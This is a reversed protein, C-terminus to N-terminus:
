FSIGFISDDRRKRKKHHMRVSRRPKPSGRMRSYARKRHKRLSKRYYSLGKKKAKDLAKQEIATLFSGLRSLKPHELEFTRSSLERSFQKTQAKQFRREAKVKSAEYRLQGMEQKDRLKQLEREEKTMEPLDETSENAM